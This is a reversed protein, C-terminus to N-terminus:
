NRGQAVSEIASYIGVLILGLGLSCVIFEQRDLVSALPPLHFMMGCASLVVYVRRHLM